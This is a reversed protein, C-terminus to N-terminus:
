EFVVRTNGEARPRARFAQALEQRLRKLSNGKVTVPLTRVQALGDHSRKGMEAQLQWEGRSVSKVTIGKLVVYHLADVSYNMGIPNLNSISRRPGAATHEGQLTTMYGERLFAMRHRHQFYSTLMQKVAPRRYFRTPSAAAALSIDFGMLVM